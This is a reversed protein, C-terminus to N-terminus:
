IFIIQLNKWTNKQYFHQVEPAILQFVRFSQKQIMISFVYLIRHPQPVHTLLILVTTVVV